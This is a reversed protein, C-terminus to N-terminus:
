KKIAPTLYIAGDYTSNGNLTGDDEIEHVIIKETLKTPYSEICLKKIDNRYTENDKLKGYNHTSNYEKEPEINFDCTQTITIYIYFITM